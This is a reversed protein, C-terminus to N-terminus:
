SEVAVVHQGQRKPLNKARPRQDEKIASEVRDPDIACCEILYAKVFETLDHLAIGHTRQGTRAYLWTSFDFFRQFPADADLMLDITRAFKGSNATMDWYRAFRRMQQLEDFSVHKTQLIEYPPYPSYVMEWEADHRIIPTGRLRKLIGVQIEQPRMRWLRDFGAGFSALDEGPLGVIL